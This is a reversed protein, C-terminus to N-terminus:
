YAKMISSTEKSLNCNNQAENVAGGGGGILYLYLTAQREQTLEGTKYAVQFWMSHQIARFTLIVCGYFM